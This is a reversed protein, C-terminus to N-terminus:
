RIGIIIIIVIKDVILSIRDQYAMSKAEQEEYWEHILPIQVNGGLDNNSRTEKIKDSDIIYRISNVQEDTGYDIQISGGPATAFFEQLLGISDPLEMYGKAYIDMISDQMFFSIPQVSFDVPKNDIRIEIDYYDLIKM